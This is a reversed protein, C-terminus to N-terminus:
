IAEKMLWARAATTSCVTEGAHLEPLMEGLSGPLFNFCSFSFLPNKESTACFRGMMPNSFCHFVLLKCCTMNRYSNQPLAPDEPVLRINKDM